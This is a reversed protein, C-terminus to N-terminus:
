AELAPRQGPFLEPTVGTEYAEAIAPVATEGVTSGDPLVLHALFEEEFTMLGSEVAELKAKVVLAMARWRRRIEKEQANRRASQERYYGRGDYKIEDDELSPLRIDFRVMRDDARFMIRAMNEDYAYSFANAGYRTLIREIEGRSREPAVQTGEAYRKAV